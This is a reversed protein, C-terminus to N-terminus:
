AWGESCVAAGEIGKGRGGAVVGIECVQRNLQEWNDSQLEAIKIERGGQRPAQREAALAGSVDISLKISPWNM